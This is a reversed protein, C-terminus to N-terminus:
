KIATFVAKLQTKKKYSHFLEYQHEPDCQKRENTLSQKVFEISESKNNKLRFDRLELMELKNFFKGCLVQFLFNIYPM